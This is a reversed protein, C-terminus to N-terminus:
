VSEETKAVALRVEHPVPRLASGSTDSLMRKACSCLCDCPRGKSILRVSLFSPQAMAHAGAVM